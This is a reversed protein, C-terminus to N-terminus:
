QSTLPIGTTDADTEIVMVGFYSSPASNAHAQFPGSAPASGYGLCPQLRGGPRDGAAAKRRRPKPDEYDADLAPPPRRKRRSKREAQVRHLSNLLCATSPM